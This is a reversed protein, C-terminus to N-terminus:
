KKEWVKWPMKNM